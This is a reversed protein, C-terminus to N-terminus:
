LYNSSLISDLHFSGQMFWLSCLSLKESKLPVKVKLWCAMFEDHFVWLLLNRVLGIKGVNLTSRKVEDAKM